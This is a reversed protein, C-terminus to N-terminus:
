LEVTADWGTIQLSACKVTDVKELIKVLSICTATMVNKRANQASVKTFILVKLVFTINVDTTLVSQSYNERNEKQWLALGSM